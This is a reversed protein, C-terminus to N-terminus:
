NIYKITNVYKLYKNVYKNMYDAKLILAEMSGKASNSLFESKRM